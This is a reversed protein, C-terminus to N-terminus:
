QLFNMIEPCSPACPTITDQPRGRWTCSLVYDVHLKGRWADVATQVLPIYSVKTIYKPSHGGPSEPNNKGRGRKEQAKSRGELTSYKCSPLIRCSWREEPSRHLIPTFSKTYLVHVYRWPTNRCRCSRSVSCYRCHTLGRRLETTSATSIFCVVLFPSDLRGQAM